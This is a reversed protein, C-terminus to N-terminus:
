DSVVLETFGTTDDFERSFSLAPYHHVILEATTDIISGDLLHGGIVRGTNDSVTLHIHQHQPTLTGM